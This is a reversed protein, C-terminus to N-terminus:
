QPDLPFISILRAYYRLVLTADGANVRSDGNVDAAVQQTGNLTIIRAYHRLILTADGSNIKGDNNIDGYLIGTGQISFNYPNEDSDNNAISVMATKVGAASPNFQVTFTANGGATVSSTPQTTIMFDAADTGSITVRPNGTLDLAGTGTNRITFIRDMTGGATDASGFDTYDTTSPTSDGDAISVSNGQVDIEPPSNWNLAAYADVLGWGYTPDWGPTGLDLATEQLAARIQDPATANGNSILLAAIGAVHPSAMSTGQYFWYGFEGTAPDFTNQLVGDDYSDNNQDVTVDGGPAMVDLSAGYNSYYSKSKDFRTAGVAIVYDDYAAPYAVAGSSNGAAAVITVGKNYAYAVAEELIQSPSDQGLSMNIVQAGHDAAWRIGLAVGYSTGSGHADLVKIPMLTAGYAVGAVGEVNNTSQAVTGAVHTGHANDDNAHTDNNVFDYSYPSFNTNALDPAKVYQYMFAPDYYNEYAVGTDIVAVTVGSGNSTNWAEEMRIGGINQGRLHWQYSFYYDNPILYSRCYYNPEAYVVDSTNKYEKVKDKVQGKPVKIIRFPKNDNKYKVLIEDPVYEEAAASHPKVEM